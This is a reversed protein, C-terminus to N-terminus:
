ALKIAARSDAHGIPTPISLQVNYSYQGDFGRRQRANKTGIQQNGLVSLYQQAFRASSMLPQGNEMAFVLQAGLDIGREGCRAPDHL